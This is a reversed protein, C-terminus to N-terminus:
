RKRLDSYKLFKETPRQCGLARRIKELAEPRLKSRIESSTDLISKERDRLELHPRRLEIEELIEEYLSANKGRPHYQYLDGLTWPEDWDIKELLLSEFEKEEELSLGAKSQKREVYRKFKALIPPARDFIHDRHDLRGETLAQLWGEFRHIFSLPKDHISRDLYIIFTLRLDALKEFFMQRLTNALERSEVILDEREGKIWRGGAESLVVEIIGEIAGCSWLNHMLWDEEDDSAFSWADLFFYSLDELKFDEIRKESSKGSMLYGLYTLKMISEVVKKRGEEDLTALIYSAYDRYVRSIFYDAADWFYRRLGSSSRRWLSLRYDGSLDDLLVGYNMICVPNWEMLARDVKDKLFLLPYRKGIVWRGDQLREIIKEGELSRLAYAVTGDKIERRLRKQLYRKIETYTKSGERLADVVLRKVIPERPM